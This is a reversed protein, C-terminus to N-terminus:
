WLREPMIALGIESWRLEPSAGFPKRRPLGLRWATKDMVELLDM